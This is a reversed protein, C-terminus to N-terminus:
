VDGAKLDKSAVFLQPSALVFGFLQKLNEAILRSEDGSWSIFGSKTM